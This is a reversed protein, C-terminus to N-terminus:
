SYTISAETSTASPEISPEVSILISVEASDEVVEVVEMPAEVEETSAYIYPITAEMSTTSVEMFTRTGM